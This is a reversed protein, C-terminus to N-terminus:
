GVWPCAEFAYIQLELSNNSHSNLNHGPCRLSLSGLFTPRVELVTKMAVVVSEGTSMHFEVVAMVCARGPYLM